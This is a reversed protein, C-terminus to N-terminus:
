RSARDAAALSGWLIAVALAIKALPPLESAFALVIGCSAIAGFTAAAAVPPM